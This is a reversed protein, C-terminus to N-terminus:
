LLEAFSNVRKKKGLVIDYKEKLFTQLVTIIKQGSDMGYESLFRDLDLNINVKNTKKARIIILICAVMIGM